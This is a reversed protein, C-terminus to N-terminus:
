FPTQVRGSRGYLMLDASEQVQDRQAKYERVMQADGLQEALRIQENKIKLLKDLAERLSFHTEPNGGVGYAQQSRYLQEIRPLMARGQEGLDHLKQMIEMEKNSSSYSNSSSYNYSNEEQQRLEEVNTQEIEKKINEEKKHSYHELLRKQGVESGYYTIIRYEKYSDDNAEVSRSIWNGFEDFEYNSYNFPYAIGSVILQIVNGENDYEYGTSSSNYGDEFLITEEKLKEGEWKLRTTSDSQPDYYEIIAGNQDREVKEYKPNILYGQEDFEYIIDKSADYTIILKKVHGKLQFLSLDPSTFIEEKTSDVNNSGNERGRCSVIIVSIILILFLYYNKKM